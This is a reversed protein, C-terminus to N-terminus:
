EFSLDICVIRGLNRDLSWAGWRSDLFGGKDLETLCDGCFSYDQGNSPDHCSPCLSPSFPNSSKLTDLLQLCPFCIATDKNCYENVLNRCGLEQRVCAISPKLESSSTSQSSIKEKHKMTKHRKLVTSTKAEYDCQDCKYKQSSCNPEIKEAEDKTGIRSVEFELKNLREIIIVLESQKEKLAKIESKLNEIEIRFAEEIHEEASIHLYSCNDEFKCRGFQAYFKCLRPHRSMCGDVRCKFNPCTVMNHFKRCTPGFKCHGFQHFKCFVEAAAM